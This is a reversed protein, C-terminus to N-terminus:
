LSLNQSPAYVRFDPVWIVHQFQTQRVVQVRTIYISMECRVGMPTARECLKRLYIFRAKCQREKGMNGNRSCSTRECSGIETKMGSEIVQGIQRDLFYM